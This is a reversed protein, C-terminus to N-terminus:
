GMSIGGGAIQLCSNKRNNQLLDSIVEKVMRHLSHRVAGRNVKSIAAVNGSRAVRAMTRCGYSLKNENSGCRLWTWNLAVSAEFSDLLDTTRQVGM